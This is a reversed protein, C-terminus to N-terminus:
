AQPRTLRRAEDRRRQLGRDPDYVRIMEAVRPDRESLDDVSAHSEVRHPEEAWAPRHPVNGILVFTLRDDSRDAVLAVGQVANARGWEDAALVVRHAEPREVMLLALELEERTEPVAESDLAARLTPASGSELSRALSWAAHGRIMSSPHSMHREIPERTKPEGSNGAAVLLNRRLYRGDRRPVYWWHFRELLAEDSMALLEGFDLSDPDGGARSLAPQGPPCATLCDDCGYIRRGLLPRIWHPISGATQLWTSLCRRADLGRETIAGTPCAPICAICTGCSRSMPETIALPADTVVSGLLVWPGHGPVLTMTSKGSWGVGSRVAAARDVLRNDDSLIEARHGDRRLRSVLESTIRRIGEYQDSVAFRGVQPGSRAPATTSGLYGSAVVVLHQAWPFSKTVDTALDPDSYTFHLPGSFGSRRHSLLTSREREFPA